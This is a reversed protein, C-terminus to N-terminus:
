GGKQRELQELATQLEQTLRYVFRELYAVREELTGSPVIRPQELMM